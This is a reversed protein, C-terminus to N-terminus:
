WGVIDQTGNNETTYSDSAREAKPHFDLAVIALSNAIYFPSSGFNVTRLGREVVYIAIELKFITYVWFVFITYEQVVV